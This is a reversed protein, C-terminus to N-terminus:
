EKPAAEIAKLLSDADSLFQPILLLINDAYNEGYEHATQNRHDRYQLWREVEDLTILGHKAAHRFIDKYTLADLQKSSSFFVLLSKKLLKGCQESVIEFEKVCAARYIDYVVSKADHQALNSQALRLTDICRHVFDTNLM